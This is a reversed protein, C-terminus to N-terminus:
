KAPACLRQSQEALDLDGFTLALTKAEICRGALVADAVQQRRQAELDAREHSQAVAITAANDAPASYARQWEPNPTPQPRAADMMRQTNEQAQRTVDFLDVRPRPQETRCVWKSFETGCKTVQAGAPSALAVLAAVLLLKM